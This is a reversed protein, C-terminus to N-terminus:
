GSPKAAAPWESRPMYARRFRNYWPVNHTRRVFRLEYSWGTLLYVLWLYFAAPAVLVRFWM